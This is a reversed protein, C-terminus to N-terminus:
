ISLEVPINSYLFIPTIFIASHSPRRTATRRDIRGGERCPRWGSNWSEVM